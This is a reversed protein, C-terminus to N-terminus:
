TRSASAVVRQDIIGFPASGTIIGFEGEFDIGDGKGTRSVIVLRGDPQDSQLTALKM